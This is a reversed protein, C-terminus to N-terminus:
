SGEHSRAGKLISKFLDEIPNIIVTGITDDSIKTPWVSSLTFYQKGVKKDGPSFGPWNESTLVVLFARAKPFEKKLKEERGRFDDEWKDRNWGLQTKCEIIASVEDGRWISIDPRIAGKKPRIQRESYVKLGTNYTELIAKLYFSVTEAFFDSAAPSYRKNLLKKIRNQFEYYAKMRFLIAKTVDRGDLNIKGRSIIKEYLMELQKYQKNLVKSYSKEFELISM